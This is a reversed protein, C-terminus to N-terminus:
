YNTNGATCNISYRGENCVIRDDKLDWRVVSGEIVDFTRCCVTRASNRVLSDYSATKNGLKNGLDESETRCTDLSASLANSYGTLDAKEKKCNALSSASTNITKECGKLNENASALGSVCTNKEAEMSSLQNKTDNLQQELGGQYTLYGTVTNNIGQFSIILFVSIIAIAAPKSNNKAFEKLRKHWSYPKYNYRFEGFAMNTIITM